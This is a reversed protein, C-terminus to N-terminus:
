DKKEEKEELVAIHSDQAEKSKFDFLTVLKEPEKSENIKTLKEQKFIKDSISITYKQGATGKITWVCLQPAGVKSKEWDLYVISEAKDEVIILAQQRSKEDVVTITHLPLSNQLSCCALFKDEPSYCFMSGKSIDTDQSSCLMTKEELNVYRWSFEDEERTLM